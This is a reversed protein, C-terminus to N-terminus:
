EIIDRYIQGFRIRFRLEWTPATFQQDINRNNKLMFRFGVGAGVGFYKLLRYEIAMGPEYLIVTSANRKARASADGNGNTDGLLEYSRGLGLQFPITVEWKRKHIFAYEFFPAIYSLRLERIEEVGDNDFIYTDGHKLWHYGIGVNVREGFSVGGKIGYTRVPRGTIFANTSGFRGFLKPEQEFAVALSDTLEPLEDQAVAGIGGYALFLLSLCLTRVKMSM